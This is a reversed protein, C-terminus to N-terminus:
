ELEAILADKAALQDDIQKRVHAISGQLAEKRHELISNKDKLEAIIADKTFLQENMQKGLHAISGQLVENRHELNSNKGKLEDIIANKQALQEDEENIHEIVEHLKERISPATDNMDM